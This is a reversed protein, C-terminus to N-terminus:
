FLTLQNEKKKLKFSVRHLSSLGFMEIEKIHASTGYGKHSSFSYNAFEQAISEMYKDRSVKALISAASVADVYMDAKIQHELNPIKYSTNGDFLYREAQLTAMIEKLSNQIAWSIGKTDITHNDTFVIKYTSNQIIQEYLALRQKESLKKSDNLGQIPHHLIAGAVVLPGALPGRGAEDIGCLTM